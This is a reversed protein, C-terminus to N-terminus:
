IKNKKNLFKGFFFDLIFGGGEGSWIIASCFGAVVVWFEKDFIFKEDVVMNGLVLPGFKVLMCDFLPLVVTFEFAFALGNKQTTSSGSRFHPIPM